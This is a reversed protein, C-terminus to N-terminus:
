RRYAFARSQSNEPRSLIPEGPRIRVASWRILPRVMSAAPGWLDVGQSTRLPRRRHHFAHLLMSTTVSCSRELSYVYDMAWRGLRGSKESIGPRPEPHECLAATSGRTCSENAHISSKTEISISALM